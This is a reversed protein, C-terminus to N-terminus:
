GEWRCVGVGVQLWRHAGWIFLGVAVPALVFYIWIMAPASLFQLAQILVGNLGLDAVIVENKLVPLLERLHDGLALNIRLFDWCVWLYALSLGIKSLVYFRYSTIYRTMIFRRRGPCAVPAM